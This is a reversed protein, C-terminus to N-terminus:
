ANYFLVAQLSALGAPDTCTTHRRIIL